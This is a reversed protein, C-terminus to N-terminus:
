IINKKRCIFTPEWKKQEFLFYFKIGNICILEHKGITSIQAYAFRLSACHYHQHKETYMERYKEQLCVVMHMM